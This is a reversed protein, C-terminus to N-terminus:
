EKTKKQRVLYIVIMFLAIIYMIYGLRLCSSRFIYIPNFIVFTLLEIILYKNINRSTGNAITMLILFATIVILFAVYPKASFATLAQYENRTFFQFPAIILLISVIFLSRNNAFAYKLSSITLTNIMPSQNLEVKKFFRFFLYAILVIANLWLVFQMRRLGPLVVVPISFDPVLGPGVLGFTLLSYFGEILPKSVTYLTTSFDNTEATQQLSYNILISWFLLNMFGLPIFIKEKKKLVFLVEILSLMLLQHARTSVLEYITKAGFSDFYIFPSFSTLIAIFQTILILALLIGLISSDKTLRKTITIINRM